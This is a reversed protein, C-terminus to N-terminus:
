LVSQIEQIITCCCDLGDRKSPEDLDVVSLICGEKIAGCCWLCSEAFVKVRTVFICLCLINMSGSLFLQMMM